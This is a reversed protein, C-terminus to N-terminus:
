RFKQGAKYGFLVSVRQHMVFLRFDDKVEFWLRGEDAERKGQLQAGFQSAGGAPHRHLNISLRHRSAEPPLYRLLGHFLRTTPDCYNNKPWFGYM